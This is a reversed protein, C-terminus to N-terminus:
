SLSLGQMYPLTRQKRQPKLQKELLPRKENLQILKEWTVEDARQKLRKLYTVGHQVAAYADKGRVPWLKMRKLRPKTVGTRLARNQYALPLQFGVALQYELIANLRTPILLDKGGILQTLDFDETVIEYRATFLKGNRYRSKRIMDLAARVKDHETGEFEGCRWGLLNSLVKERPHSFARIHVVFHAWGMVGGPDFAIVHLENKRSTV